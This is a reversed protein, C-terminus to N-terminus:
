VSNMRCRRRRSAFVAAQCSTLAETAQFIGSVSNYKQRQPAIEQMNVFDPVEGAELAAFAKRVAGQGARNAPPRSPQHISTQAATQDFLADGPGTLALAATVARDQSVPLVVARDEQESEGFVFQDREAPEALVPEPKVFRRDPRGFALAFPRRHGIM